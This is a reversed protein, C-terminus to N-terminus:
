KIKHILLKSNLIKNYMNQVKEETLVDCKHKIITNLLNNITKHNTYCSSIIFKMMNCFDCFLTKSITTKGLNIELNVQKMALNGIEIMEISIAIPILLSHCNNMVFCCGVNIKNVHLAFKDICQRRACYWFSSCM